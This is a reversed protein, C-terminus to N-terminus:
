GILGLATTLARDPITGDYFAEEWTRNGSGKGIEQSHKILHRTTSM